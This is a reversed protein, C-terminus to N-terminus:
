RGGGVRVTLIGREPVDPDNALQAIELDHVRLVGAALEGRSHEGYRRFRTARVTAVGPLALVAAYVPSLHVPTGFTFHDPHFLGRRGDRTTGASLVDLVDREVDTAFRDDHACVELELEVAVPVPRAVDVDVGAMRRSDLFREVRAVFDPDVDAGGIRDVTAFATYWSGTWRLRGTARQVGPFRETLITGYDAETVAREQVRFAAPADTRVQETPEPDVGGTAALPNTVELDSDVMRTISGAGVNGASGHGLRYSARPEAGVDPERGYTGDGFRLTATGDDETEVVLGRDVGDSALLDPRAEFGDLAVLEPDDYLVDDPLDDPLGEPFVKVRPVARRPDVALLSTASPRVRAGDLDTVLEDYPVAYTPRGDPLAPRWRGRPDLETGLPVPGPISTGHEVLAVNGAAEGVTSLRLSGDGSRTRSVIRLPFTLADEPDWRVELIPTDDLPDTTPTGVDALRVVARHRPDADEREGSEAGAVEHLLLFDGPVLTLEDGDPIRLTASTAGVPLCCLDDSWTHLEIQNHAKVAALPHLSQFWQVDTGDPGGATAFRQSKPVPQASPVQVQVFTRAACGEHMRYGLLRAHRRVSTRRRATGLYAETAVADQEHSLRDAVFALLEVLAVQADAPHDDWGPVRSSIRDVMLQRFSAYDKALYDRVTSPLRPPPCDDDRRCDFRTPCGAKFTFDLESLRPDFGTPTRGTVPDVLRLRYTSFDGPGSTTVTLVNGTTATSQARLGRVRDGGEVVVHARTLTTGTTPVGDTQGPLPHLFHVALKRQGPLVELFDIGNVTTTDRVAEERLGEPCLDVDSV